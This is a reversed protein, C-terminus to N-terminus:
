KGSREIKVVNYGADKILEAIKEDSLAQGKKLDLTVLKADLNVDVKEVAEQKSFTKKIGQACFACVLGNVNVKVTEAFAASGFFVSLLAIMLFKKM